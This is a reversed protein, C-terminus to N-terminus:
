ASHVEVDLYEMLSKQPPMMLPSRTFAMTMKRTASYTYQRAKLRSKSHTEGIYIFLYGKFSLTVSANDEHTFATGGGSFVPGTNNGWAGTYTLASNNEEYTTNSVTASCFFETLEAPAYM